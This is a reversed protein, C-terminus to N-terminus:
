PAMRGMDPRFDLDEVAPVWQVPAPKPLLVALSSGATVDDVDLNRDTYDDDQSSPHEVTGGTCAHLQTFRPQGRSRQQVQLAQQCCASKSSAEQTGVV